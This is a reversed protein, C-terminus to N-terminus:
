IVNFGSDLSFQVRTKENKIKLNENECKENLFYFIINM